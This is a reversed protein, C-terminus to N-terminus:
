KSREQDSVLTELSEVRDDLRGLGSHIEQMVATERNSEADNRKTKILKTFLAVVATALMVTVVIALVVVIVALLSAM